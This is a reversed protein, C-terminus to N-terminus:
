KNELFHFSVFGRISFVDCREHALKELDHLTVSDKDGRTKAGAVRSYNSVTSGLLVSIMYLSVRHEAQWRTDGKLQEISTNPNVDLLKQLLGLLASHVHLGLCLPAARAVGLQLFAKWSSEGSRVDAFRAGLIREVYDQSLAQYSEVAFGDKVHAALSAVAAGVEVPLGDAEVQQRLRQLLLEAAGHWWKKIGRDKCDGVRLEDAVTRAGSAQDKTAHAVTGGARRAQLRCLADFTMAFRKLNPRRGAVVDKIRDLVRPFLAQSCAAMELILARRMNSLCDYYFLGEAVIDRLDPRIKEPTAPPCCAHCTHVMGVLAPGSYDISTPVRRGLVANLVWAMLGAARYPSGLWVIAFSADRGLQRAEEMEREKICLLAMCILNQSTGWSRNWLSNAWNHDCMAAHRAGEGQPPTRHRGGADAYVLVVDCTPAVIKHSVLFSTAAQKLSEYPTTQLMGELESPSCRAFGDGLADTSLAVSHITRRNGPSPAPTAVEVVGGAAMGSPGPPQETAGRTQGSRSALTPRKYSGAGRGVSGQSGGIRRTTLGLARPWDAHYAGPTGNLFQHFTTHQTLAPAHTEFWGRKILPELGADFAARVDRITWIYSAGEFGDPSTMQLEEFLTKAINRAAQMQVDRGAGEGPPCYENEDTLARLLGMFTIEVSELDWGMTLSLGDGSACGAMGFGPPSSADARWAAELAAWEHALVASGSDVIVPALTKDELLIVQWNGSHLDNITVHKSHLANVIGLMRALLPVLVADPGTDTADFNLDLQQLMCNYAVHELEIGHIREAALVTFTDHLFCPHTFVQWFLAARLKLDQRSGCASAHAEPWLLLCAEDVSVGAVAAVFDNINYVGAPVAHTVVAHQELSPLDRLVVVSLGYARPTIFPADWSFPRLLNMTILYEKVNGALVTDVRGEAAAHERHMFVKKHEIGLAVKVIIENSDLEAQGDWRKGPESKCKTRASPLAFVVRFSGAGLFSLDKIPVSWSARGDVAVPIEHVGNARWFAELMAKTSAHAEVGSDALVEPSLAPLRDGAPARGRPARPNYSCAMKAYCPEPRDFPM